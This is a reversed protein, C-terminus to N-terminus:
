FLTPWTFQHDFVLWMGLKAMLANIKNLSHAAVAKSQTQSSVTSKVQVDECTVMHVTSANSKKESQEGHGILAHIISSMKNAQWHTSRTLRYDTGQEEERRRRSSLLISSCSSYLEGEHEIEM